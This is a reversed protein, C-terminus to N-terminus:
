FHWKKEANKKAEEGKYKKYDADKGMEGCKAALTRFDGATKAAAAMMAIGADPDHYYLKRGEEFSSDSFLGM